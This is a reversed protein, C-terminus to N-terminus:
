VYNEKMTDMQKFINLFVPKSERFLKIVENKLTVPHFQEEEIESSLYSGVKIDYARFILVRMGIESPYDYILSLWTCSVYVPSVQFFM